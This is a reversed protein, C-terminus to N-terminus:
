TRRLTAGAYRAKKGLEEHIRLLENYKANRDTRAPGGFKCQGADLAVVLDSIFADETEGSRHSVVVTWGSKFALKAADISATVTGIQNVKLLLANVAKMGIAKRIREVNTVLLDDGVIQVGSGMAKVLAQWGEWDDEAMGDEISIIGHKQAVEQYYKILGDRDYTETGITYAGKDYFESSACDLAIRIKGTYGAQAIAEEIIALRGSLEKIPPVFGGEDGVLTAQAGFRQKLLSRLAAYTEALMRIAEPFDKAGVPMIMHEQIDNEQGAHRGGNMINAQPVPLTVGKRGALKALYAYLPLKAAAAGARAASLSVGLIANAGLSSKTPTNDLAILFRDIDAQKAADKGKLKPAIRRNVNDVAKLVGKGGYRAKDGDRLELAEHVGTSAGSPVASRFLGSTTILDVEITPNGRSDLIERAKLARILAKAM